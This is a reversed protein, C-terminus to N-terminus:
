SRPWSDGDGLAEQVGVGHEAETKSPKSCVSGWGKQDKNHNEFQTM